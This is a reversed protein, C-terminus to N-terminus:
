NFIINDREAIAKIPDSEDYRYTEQQSTQPGLPRNPMSLSQSLADSRPSPDLHKNLNLM